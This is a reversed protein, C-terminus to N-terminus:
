TFSSSCDEAELDELVLPHFIELRKKGRQKSLNDLKERVCIGFHTFFTAPVRGGAQPQPDLLHFKNRRSDKLLHM